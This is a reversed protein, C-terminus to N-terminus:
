CDVQHYSLAPELLPKTHSLHCIVEYVWTSSSPMVFGCHRLLDADYMQGIQAITYLIHIKKIM